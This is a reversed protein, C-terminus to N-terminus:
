VRHQSLRNVNFDLSRSMNVRSNDAILAFIGARSHNRGVGLLHPPRTSGPGVLEHCYCMGTGSAAAPTTTDASSQAQLAPSMTDNTRHAAVIPCRRASARTRCACPRTLLTGAGSRPVDRSKVREAKVQREGVAAKGEGRCGPQIQAVSTGGGCEVGGAAVNSYAVQWVAQSVRHRGIFFLFFRGRKKLCGMLCYASISGEGLPHM